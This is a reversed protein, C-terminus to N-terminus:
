NLLLYNEYKLIYQKYSGIRKLDSFCDKCDNCYFNIVHKPITKYSQKLNKQLTTMKNLFYCDFTNCTKQTM